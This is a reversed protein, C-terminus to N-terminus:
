FSFFSILVICHLAEFFIGVTDLFLFWDDKSHSKGTEGTKGEWRARICMSDLRIKSFFADNM